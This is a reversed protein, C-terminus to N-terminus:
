REDYRQERLERLVCKRCIDKVIEMEMNEQARLLARTGSPGSFNIRM